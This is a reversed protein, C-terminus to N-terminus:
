EEKSIREVRFASEGLEKTLLGTFIRAIDRGVQNDAGVECIRQTEDLRFKADLNVKSRGHLAEVAMVSLLLTEEVDAMSPSDSFRYQYIDKTL